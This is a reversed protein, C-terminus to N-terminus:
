ESGLRRGIGPFRELDGLHREELERRAVTNQVMSPSPMTEEKTEEKTEEEIMDLPREFDVNIDCNTTQITKDPNCEMVEIHYQIDLYNIIMVEGKSLIPYNESIFRELIAKPDSLEIFAKEYPKIKIYSGLPVEKIQKVITPEGDSLHLCEIMSHPIFCIGPSDNYEHVGVFIEKCNRPNMISFYVTGNELDLDPLMSSPLLIKNGYELKNAMNHESFVMSYANLTFEM